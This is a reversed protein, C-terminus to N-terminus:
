LTSVSVGDVRGLLDLLALDIGQRVLGSRSYKHGEVPYFKDMAQEIVAINRADHGRLLDNLSQELNVFDMQFLPLHSLDSMEGWGTYNDDTDLRVIIHQNLIGTRRPIVVPYLKIRAINM